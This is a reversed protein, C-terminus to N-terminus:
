QQKKIIKVEIASDFNPLAGVFSSGCNVSQNNIVASLKTNVTEDGIMEKYGGRYDSIYVKKSGISFAVLEKARFLAMCIKGESPVAMKMSYGIERPSLFVSSSGFYDNIRKAGIKELGRRIEESSVSNATNYTDGFLYPRNEKCPLDSSENEVVFCYNNDPMGLNLDCLAIDFLEPKGMQELLTIWNPEIKTEKDARYTKLIVIPKDHKNQCYVRSLQRPITRYLNGAGLYSHRLVYHGRLDRVCLEDKGKVNVMCPVDLKQQTMFVDGNGTIGFHTEFENMDALSTLYDYAVPHEVIDWGDFQEGNSIKIFVHDPLCVYEPYLHSLSESYPRKYKVEVGDIKLISQLSEESYIGKVLYANNTSGAVFSYNTRELYPVALQNVYEKGDYYAIIYGLRRLAYILSLRNQSTPVIDYFKLVFNLADKLKASSVCGNNDAIDYLIHVLMNSDQSFPVNDSDRLQHHANPQANIHPISSGEITEGWENYGYKVQHGRWKFDEKIQESLIEKEDNDKVILNGRIFDDNNRPLRFYTKGNPASILPEVAKGEKGVMDPYWYIHQGEELCIGFCTGAGYLDFRDDIVKRNNQREAHSQVTYSDIACVVYDELEVQSRTWGNTLKEIGRVGKKIFKIYRKGDLLTTVQHYYREGVQQFFIEKNWTGEDNQSLNCFHYEFGDQQINSLQLEEFQIESAIYDTKEDTKVFAGQALQVGFPLDYDTSIYFNPTGDYDLEMEYKWKVDRMPRENSCESTSPDKGWDLDRQLINKTYPIYKPTKVIDIYRQPKNARHLAPILINNAYDAYSGENWQLDGIELFDIFDQLENPKLVLHFKIRSMHRQEGCVMRDPNFFQNDKHLKQMLDDVLEGVKGNYREGLYRKALTKMAKHDAGQSSALYMIACLMAFYAPVEDKKYKMLVNVIDSWKKIEGDRNVNWVACDRMERRFDTIQDQAILTSRLFACEVSEDKLLGFKRGLGDLLDNDVYLIPNAEKTSFFHEWLAKNWKRYDFYSM